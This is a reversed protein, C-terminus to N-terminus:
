YGLRVGLLITALQPYETQDTALNRSMGGDTNVSNEPDLGTYKTWMHLNRGTLTVAVSKAGIYRVAHVPADYSLSVERLKAFNGSRIYFDQLQGGGNQAHAVQVPDYREPYINELCAGFVQCTQEYNTDTKKFGRQFDIMAYLRFAGFRFTNIWSGTTTPLSHGVNVLPAQLSSSNPFFCPITGGKGNDCVLDVAQKTAPDYRASVVRYTFIDFPSYGVRHFVVGVTGVSTNGGTVNISTDAGSGLKIIKAKTGAVNFQMDWGYRRANLIQGKLALEFGKKNIQGANVFQTSAGFATSPAVTSALIADRSVDRYLTLDVGIRDGFMGAELGLETGLVREPKLDPNGITSNTLTTQGNPGAVPALTRLASNTLPQQGSGGYAGRLRLEDIFGPIHSKLSPEDSAVWSASIKPYTTFKADSGFASNNDVRVAGTVFLRNSLAFEQQGYSGLTNNAILNSTPSGKLGTASITSVGPTPFHQGSAFLSTQKNTYYQVGITSKAQIGRWMGYKATAAYDYTNYTTQQTTEDRRGDFRSGLFFVIVSDTQYPLLTNIDEMTYDTGILFRNSLWSFPDYKLSASGTFRRVDQWNSTQAYVEPPSVLSGRAWGCGRPITTNQYLYPCAAVTRQPLAFQAWIAGASGGEGATTTNSTLYGASTEISVKRGPVVSLNARANKQTRENSTVIGEAQSFEGGIFHRYIGAGGSANASFNYTNGTRFLPTGRAKESQVMNLSWLENTVPNLWYNTRVRNEADNFWMSGSQATFNYASSGTTGRKTIINIVGRAAETGYLTAAAPGKLVEISAIEEPNIDNFRSVIGTQGNNTRVGDIYVLPTGSLSFSGVGRVRIQSGAGVQGTASIVDVGPARGTILGQVTPVATQAQIDAANVVSVSTGLERVQAGGATGTVVVSNLEIVRESMEIRLDTTGVQVTDTVPRFGLFRVNLVVTPGTLGTLRFRGSADTVTGRPPTGVVGVEVGALPRQNGQAVVTGAVTGDQARLLSPTTVVFLLTAARAAWAFLTSRLLRTAIMYTAEAITYM